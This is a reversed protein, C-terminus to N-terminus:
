GTVFGDSTHIIYPLVGNVGGRRGIRGPSGRQCDAGSNRDALYADGGRAVFHSARCRRLNRRVDRRMAVLSTNVATEEGHPCERGREHGGRGWPSNVGLCGAQDSKM